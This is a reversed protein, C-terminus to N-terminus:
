RRELADGIAGALEGQLLYLDGDSRELTDAWLVVGDSRRWLEAFLRLRGATRAVSGRLLLDARLQGAAEVPEIAAGEFRFSSSRALVLVDGPLRRSLEVILQDSLGAALERGSDDAAAIPLVALRSPASVGRDRSAIAILIVFLAGAALVWRRLSAGPEGASRAAQVAAPTQAPDAFPEPAVLLRYGRKPLTEVFRPAAASDGLAERLTAVASNLNNEFDVFTDDSWLRRQLEERGVVEGPREALALLVEIPKPPLRARHGNRAIEGAGPEVVLEGM